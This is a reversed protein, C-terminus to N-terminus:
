KKARYGRGEDNIEYGSLFWHNGGEHDRTIIARFGGHEITISPHGGSQRVETIKGKIITEPMKSLVARGDMQGPRARALSDRREIFHALGKGHKGAKGWRLDIDGLDSRHFANPIDKQEKLCSEFAAAAKAIQREQEEPPDTNTSGVTIATAAEAPAGSSGSDGTAGAKDAAPKTPSDKKAASGGGKETFQGNGDDHKNGQADTSNALNDRSPRSPRSQRSSASAAGYTKAMEDAIVAALAPDTPLLAPLNALLHAFAGESPNDVVARVAKAAESNQKVFADIIASQTSPRNKAIQSPPLGSPDGQGDSDSPANQLPKENTQLPTQPQRENALQNKGGGAGDESSIEELKLGTAREVVPQSIKYGGARLPYMLSAIDQDTLNHADPDTVPASPLSMADNPDDEAAEARGYRALADTKSLKVGFQALHKDIEMDQKMDPKSVPEVVIEAKLTQNLVYDVVFSSVQENLTETIRVCSRQELADVEDLQGLGGVADPRSITGLDGGRYLTVIARDCWDILPGFPNQKGGDMQIANIDTSPDTVVRALRNINRLAKQLNNWQESGPAAGTKGHILPLVCRDTFVLWNTLGLRKMCACIAAAIGIGDGTSVMWEGRKMEVGDWGGVQPIYRLEGTRNEFKWLPVSTFTAEIEGNALPKWSLDHVAFGYSQASMMQEKLLALGGRENRRFADTVRVTSWFRELVEVQRAADADDEFGKKPRVSWGCRSVASAMKISAVRMKDDRQEYDGILRAMPALYGCNFEDIARIIDEPDSRVLANFKTMQELTTEAVTLVSSRKDFWHRINALIGM